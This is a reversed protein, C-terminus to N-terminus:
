KHEFFVVNVDLMNTLAIITGILKLVFWVSGTCGKTHEDDTLWRITVLPLM